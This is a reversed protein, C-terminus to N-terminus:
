LPLLISVGAPVGGQYLLDQHKVFFQVDKQGGHCQVDKLKGKKTVTDIVGEKDFTITYQTTKRAVVMKLPRDARSAKLVDLDRRLRCIEKCATSQERWGERDVPHGNPYDPLWRSGCDGIVYRGNDKVREKPVINRHPMGCWPCTNQVPRTNIYESPM